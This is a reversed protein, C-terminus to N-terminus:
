LQGSREARDLERRNLRDADNRTSSGAMFRDPDLGLAILTERSPAGTVPLRRDRQFRELAVRTNPGWVGDVPGRYYGARRLRAQVAQTTQPGVTVAARENPAAPRPEYGRAMLRNPDLGMATVTAQNLQGTVAIHRDRQLREVAARTSPGWAGDAPGRYYGLAKLRAQVDHVAQASLPKEYAPGNASQAQSALPMAGAGLAIVLVM